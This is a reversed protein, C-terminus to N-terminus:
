RESHGSEYYDGRAFLGPKVLDIFARAQQSLYKGKRVVIGYSRQPFYRRMNRIALRAKDEENISIGTVISIGMGMAVYQKIM